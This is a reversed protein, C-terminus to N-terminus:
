RKCTMSPQQEEGSEWELDEFSKESLYFRSMTDTFLLVLSLPCPQCAQTKNESERKMHHPHQTTPLIGGLSTPRRGPFLGPRQSKRSMCSKRQALGSLLQHPYELAQASTQLKHDLGKWKIGFKMDENELCQEQFFDIAGRTKEGLDKAQKEFSFSSSNPLRAIAAM